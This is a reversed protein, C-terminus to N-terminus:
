WEVPGKIVQASVAKNIWEHDADATNSFEGLVLCDNQSQALIVAAEAWGSRVATQAKIHIAGDVVKVDAVATTAMGAQALLARPLVIEKDSRAARIRLQM